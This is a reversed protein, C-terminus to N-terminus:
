LNVPAIRIAFRVNKVMAGQNELSPQGPRLGELEWQNVGGVAARSGLWAGGINELVAGLGGWSRGLCRGLRGLVGSSTALVLFLVWFVNRFKGVAAGHGGWLPVFPVWHGWFAFNLPPLTGM